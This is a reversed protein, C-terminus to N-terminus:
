KQAKLFAWPQAVVGLMSFRRGDALQETHTAAPNGVPRPLDFPMYFDEFEIQGFGAARCWETAKARSPYYYNMTPFDPRASGATIEVRVLEHEPFPHYGDFNLLWGGPKLYRCISGLAKQFADPPLVQMVAILVALDYSECEEPPPPVTLDGVEFHVGALDPDTQCEAILNEALDKGHLSWHPYNQKLHYLLNGNGCGLDILKVKNRSAAKESALALMRKDSERM